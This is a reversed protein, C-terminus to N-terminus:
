RTNYLMLWGVNIIAAIMQYVCMSETMNLQWLYTIMISVLIESKLKKIYIRSPKNKLWWFDRM